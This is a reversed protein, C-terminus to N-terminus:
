LINCCESANQEIHINNVHVIPPYHGALKAQQPKGYDSVIYNEQFNIEEPNNYQANTDRIIEPELQISNPSTHSVYGNPASSPRPPPTGLYPTESHRSSLDDYSTRVDPCFIGM